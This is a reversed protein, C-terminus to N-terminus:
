PFSKYIDRRHEFIVFYFIGNEFKAGIRYDGIRIRYHHDYGKLKKINKIQAISKATEAEVICAHISNKLSQNKLKKLEKLFASKFEVKM